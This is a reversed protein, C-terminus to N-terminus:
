GHHQELWMSWTVLSRESEILTQKALDAPERLPNPGRLLAPSCLPVVTEAALPEAEFQPSNLKGYRIEMDPERPEEGEFTRTDLLFEVHPNEALFLPLRPLLWKEAFSGGTRVCLKQRPKTDHLARSGEDLQEIAARVYRYYNNGAQTLRLTRSLRLFLAQGLHAELAHIQHSVASPTLKLERAARQFSMHRAAAEFVLLARLPPRGM